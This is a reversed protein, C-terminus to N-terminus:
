WGHTGGLFYERFSVGGVLRTPGPRAGFFRELLRRARHHGDSMEFVLQRFRQLLMGLLQRAWHVFLMPFRELVASALCWVRGRRDGLDEVGLIAVVAGDLTITIAACSTVLGLGVCDEPGDFGAARVEALDSESMALALEGAHSEKARFINVRPAM